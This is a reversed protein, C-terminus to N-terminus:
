RGEGIDARLTRIETELEDVLQSWGEVATDQGSEQANYLIDLAKKRRARLATLEEQRTM